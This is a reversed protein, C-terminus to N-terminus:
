FGGMLRRVVKKLEIVEVPCEPWNNEWCVIVDCGDLEHLHKVFSRSEFELEVRVHQWKGGEVLRLAECDPFHTQMHLIAFGLREALMGFLVSVGAENVPAFCFASPGLPAGYCPRGQIVPWPKVKGAQAALEEIEWGTLQGNRVAWAMAGSADEPIPAGLQAFGASGAEERGTAAALAAAAGMAGAAEIQVGRGLEPGEKYYAKVIDLVDRYEIDLKQQEAYRYLGRPVQRWSRFRRGLPQVSFRSDREYEAMSPVKKLKRVIRAWDQFLTDLELTYGFGTGEYGAERLAKTYGGFTNRVLGMNIKPYANRLEHMSPFRGLKRGLEQIAAIIEEKKM